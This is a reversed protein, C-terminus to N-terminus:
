DMIVSSYFISFQSSGEKELLNTIEINHAARRRLLGMLNILRTKLIINEKELKSVYDDIDSVEGDSIKPLPM